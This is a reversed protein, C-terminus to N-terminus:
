KKINSGIKPLPGAHFQAEVAGKDCMLKLLVAADAYSVGLGGEKEGEKPPEQCLTRIIDALDFSTQAQPLVDPRKPLRRMITVNNQDATANITIDGDPSQVFIDHHCTIPAGFLVIRPQGSRAVYILKHQAQAIRELYFNRGIFEQAIAIDGLERLHEYAALRVQLNDDDLLKRALAVADGHQATAAVAKLADLRYPSRADMAARRLPELAGDGGLSLMCRAAHLRVLEDPSSLLARLSPLCQNGIAELAIESEYKYQTGALREVLTKIRRATTKPDQTLFMVKLMAVFRQRRQRYQAPVSVEIRGPAPARATTDGFRGNLLNRIANTQRFDRKGLELVIVYDNLVKGGALVFGTRRDTAPNGVKDIFIPGLADGLIRADVGFSGPPKLETLFLGGGDLSTTQTSALATVKLDFYEGRFPMEPIVGEVLVAATDLSSLFEEVNLTSGAPLQRRIERALYARIAPPCEASGTGKLGGVLGYGEVPSAQPTIVTAVSGITPGLDATAPEPPTTAYRRREPCGGAFCAALLIAALLVKRQAIANM